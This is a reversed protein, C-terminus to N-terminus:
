AIAEVGYGTKLRRISINHDVTDYATSFDLFTMTVYSESTLDEFVDSYTKM